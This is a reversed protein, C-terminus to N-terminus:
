FFFHTQDENPAGYLFRMLNDWFAVWGIIEKLANEYYPIM